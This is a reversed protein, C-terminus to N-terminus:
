VCTGQAEYIYTYIYVCVMDKVKTDAGERLLLSVASAHGNIVAWHLPTREWVDRWELIGIQIYTHIYTHIYTNIYTHTYTHINVRVSCAKWVYVERHIYLLQGFCCVCGEMRSYRYMYYSSLAVPDEGMRGEMRSYRCVIHIYIHICTHICTHMYTHINVRVSCTTWVCVERHIYLLQGFCCVCGEMRSYRCEVYKYTYIYSYIYIYIDDKNCM